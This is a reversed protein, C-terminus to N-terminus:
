TRFRDTRRCEEMVAELFRETRPWGFIKVEMKEALRNAIKLAMDTRVAPDLSDRRNLFTEILQVEDLTVKSADIPPMTDDAVNTQAYPRVGELTKEHVVVTGAAFDGVRKSSRNLFICVLGVAYFTPLWDVLRVVNRVIAEYTSIPRGDDRIVRVQAVRKGPTQGNWFIEFLAFYGSQLMFLFFIIIALTWQPGFKGLNSLGAGVLAGAIIVFLSLVAQIATDLLVALFRSGLGAIPYELLTQEPTDITLKDLSYDM